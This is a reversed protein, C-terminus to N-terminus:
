RPVSAADTPDSGFRVESFDSTGDGDTDADAPDTGLEDEATNNLGDGDGDDPTSSDLFFITLHLNGDAAVTAQDLDFRFTEDTRFTGAFDSGFVYVLDHDDPLDLVNLRCSGPPLSAAVNLDNLRLVRDLKVIAGQDDCVVRLLGSTIPEDCPEVQIDALLTDPPCNHVSAVVGPGTAVGASSFVYANISDHPGASRYFIRTTHEDQRTVQDSSPIFYDDHGFFFIEATLDVFYEGAPLGNWTVTGGSVDADAQTLPEAFRDSSLRWEILPEPSPACANPDLTRLDMGPPCAYTEVAFTGDRTDSQGIGPISATVDIPVAAASRAMGCAFVLAAVLIAQMVSKVGLSGSHGRRSDRQSM